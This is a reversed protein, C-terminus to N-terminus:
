SNYDVMVVEGFPYQNAPLCTSLWLVPYDPVPLSNIDSSLGDTLYVLVDMDDVNDRVWNFAPRFATGGGGILRSPVVDGHQLSHVDAVREPVSLLHLREPRLEDLVSQAEALFRNYTNQGISGSTDLVLVIEGCFKQRRGASVLGTSQFVPVNMPSNWGARSHKTLWERLLDPWSLKSGAAREDAIRQGIDSSTGSTRRDLEDAILIRNNDQTIKDIADAQSEGDEPEPEVNDPAGTGVFDSLDDDATEDGGVDGQPTGHQPNAGGDAADDGDPPDSSGDGSDTDTGAEGDQEEAEGSEVDSDQSGDDQENDQEDTNTDNTQPQQPEPKTLERYLQIVSKDGSLQEDLLVGDIFPFVERGIERNRQAILANIVYDAATNAVQRNPLPALRWGHGLLAHLAEHVLLFAILGSANKQRCLKDIGAPNLWLKRGDTAGYPFQNTSEWQLSMLKSYALFWHRSIQRMAVSVPHNDPYSTPDIEKM